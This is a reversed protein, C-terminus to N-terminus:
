TDSILERIRINNSALNFNQSLFAAPKGSVPTAWYLFLNNNFVSIFMKTLNFSFNYYKKKNTKKQNKLVFISKKQQQM